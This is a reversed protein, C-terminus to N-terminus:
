VPRKHPLQVPHVILTCLFIPLPPCFPRGLHLMVNLNTVTLSYQDVKRLVILRNASRCLHM